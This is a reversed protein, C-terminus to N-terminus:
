SFWAGTRYDIQGKKEVNSWQSPVKEIDPDKSECKQETGNM